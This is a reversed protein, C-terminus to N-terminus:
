RFFWVTGSDASSASPGDDDDAAVVAGVGSLAIANGFDFPQGVVGSVAVGPLAVWTGGVRQFTHLTRTGAAGTVLVNARLAVGTGLQANAQPPSAKLYATETWTSGARSFVRVAGSRPASQDGPQGNGSADLPQGVVLTDGEVSAYGGATALERMWSTGMGRYVEITTDHRRATVTNGEVDVAKGFADGAVPVAPRIRGEETWRTGDWQYVYVLGYNADTVGGDHGPAGVVLRTGSVALASGFFDSRHPDSATLRQQEVWRGNGADFRFLYVSGQAQSEGSAGVALVTGDLAVAGGFNRLSTVTSGRFLQTQTWTAGSRRFAYVAGSALSNNDNGEPLAGDESPAGVVVHDGSAAVSAGFFDEAEANSARGYLAEVIPSAGRDFVLEYRQSLAGKTVVVPVTTQGPGLAVPSSAQGFSVPQGAVTASTLGGQTVVVSTEQQFVSVPLTYRTVRPDFTFPVATSIALGHPILNTCTVMLDDVDASGVRGSGNAVVCDHDPGDDAVTVLYSEGATPRAAFTFPATSDAALDEEMLGVKLHLTAAGGTWLGRVTGGIRHGGPTADSGGDEGGVDAPYPFKCGAVFLAWCSLVLQTSWRTTM